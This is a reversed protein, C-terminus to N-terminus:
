EPLLIRGFPLRRILWAILVCSASIAFPALMRFALSYVDLAGHLLLPKLVIPHLLYIAFSYKSLRFVPGLSSWSHSQFFVFVGLTYFFSAINLYDKSLDNINGDSLSLAMTGGAILALSLAALIYDTKRWRTSLPQRDLVWGPMTYILYRGGAPNLLNESVPVIELVRHVFPLIIQVAFMVGIAYRFVALRKSAPIASLM